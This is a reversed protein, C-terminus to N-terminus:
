EPVCVDLFFYRKQRQVANLIAIVDPLLEAKPTKHVDIWEPAFRADKARMELLGDVKAYFLHAYSHSVTQGHEGLRLSAMGRNQVTVKVGIKEMLQREVLEDLTENFLLTGGPFTYRHLFPAAARRHLVYEGKENEIILFGFIKPQLQMDLNTRSVQTIYKVGDMSLSYSDKRHIVFGHKVLTKLHYTFIGNGIGDPQISSFSLEGSRSLRRLIDRQIYHEVLHIM